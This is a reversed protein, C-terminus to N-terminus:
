SNLAEQYQGQRYFNMAQNYANQNNSMLVPLGPDDIFSAQWNHQNSNQQSWMFIGIGLAAAVSAAIGLKRLSFGAKNKEQFNSEFQEMQKFLRNRHFQRIGTRLTQYLEYEVLLANDTALRQ